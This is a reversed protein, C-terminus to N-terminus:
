ERDALRQGLALAAKSILTDLHLDLTAMDPDVYKSVVPRTMELRYRMNQLYRQFEMGKLALYTHKIDHILTGEIQDPNVNPQIPITDGIRTSASSTPTAIRSGDGGPVGATTQGSSANSKWPMLKHLPIYCGGGNPVPGTSSGPSQRRPTSTIRQARANLALFFDNEPPPQGM